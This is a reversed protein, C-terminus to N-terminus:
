IKALDGSLRIIVPEAPDHYKHRILLKFHPISGALARDTLKHVVADLVTMQTKKGDIAVSISRSLEAAFLDAWTASANPRARAKGAAVTKFRADKARRKDGIGRYTM